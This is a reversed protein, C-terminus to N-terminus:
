VAGSFLAFLQKWVRPGLYPTHKLALCAFREKQLDM